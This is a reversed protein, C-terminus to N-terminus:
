VEESKESEESTSLQRKKLSENLLSATGPGFM